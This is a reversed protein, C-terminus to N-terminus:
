ASARRRGARTRPCPGTRSQGLLGRRVPRGGEMRPALSEPGAGGADARRRGAGLQSIVRVRAPPVGHEVVLGAMDQGIPVTAWANRWAADRSHMWPRCLMARLPGGRLALGIEPHIDQLWHILRAGSRRAAAAAVPALLPPDTMVVLRDAATLRRRLVGRSAWTFTLYDVAKAALQRRGWRTSRVRIIEVGNRTELQPTTRRGDHSAIVVVKWGRGALGEALDTLLQATAQEDPWYFRNVFVLRPRTPPESM